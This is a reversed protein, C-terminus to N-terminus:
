VTSPRSLAHLARCMSDHDDASAEAAEPDHGPQAPSRDLDREDVPAVEV